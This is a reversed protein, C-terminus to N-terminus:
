STQNEEKGFFAHSLRKEEYMREDAKQMVENFSLYEEEPPSNPDNKAYYIGFGQSSGYKLFKRKEARKAFEQEFESMLNKMVEYRGDQKSQM